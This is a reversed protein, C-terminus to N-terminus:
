LFNSTLTLYLLFGTASQPDVAGPAYPLDLPCNLAVTGAKDVPERTAVTSSSATSNPALGRV